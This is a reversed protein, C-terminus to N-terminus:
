GPMTGVRGRMWPAARVLSALQRDLHLQNADRGARIRVHYLRQAAWESGHAAASLEHVRNRGAVGASDDDYWTVVLETSALPAIWEPELVGAGPLGVAQLGYAPLMLTTANLEGEILHVVPHGLADANFPIPPVVDRPARYRKTRDSWDPIVHALRAPPPGITRMRLFHTTGARRFPILLMPLLGGFPTWVRGHEDRPFGAARLTEPPYTAALHRRLAGWAAPSEVSRFGLERAFDPAIGRRRLYAAGRPALDTRGVVDAYLTEPMVPDPLALLAELPTPAPVAPPPPAPRTAERSLLAPVSPLWPEVYIGLQGALWRCADRPDEGRVLAALDVNTLRTQCVYCRSRRGAKPSTHFGDSSTCSAVPCAWKHRERARVLGHDELLAAVEFAPRANVESWPLPMPKLTQPPAQRLLRM